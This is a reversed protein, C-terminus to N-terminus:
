SRWTMRCDFYNRCCPTNLSWVWRARGDVRDVTINVCDTGTALKPRLAALAPAFSSSTVVRLARTCPGSGVSSRDDSGDGRGHAVAAGVLALMILGATVAAAVVWRGARNGSRHKSM